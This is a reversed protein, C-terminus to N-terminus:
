IDALRSMLKERHGQLKDLIASKEDDEEDEEEVLMEEDEDEELLEEDDGLNQDVQTTTGELLKHTKQTEAILQGLLVTIQQLAQISINGLNVQLEDETGFETTEQKEIGALLKGWM